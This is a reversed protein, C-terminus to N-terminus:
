QIYLFEKFNLVVHALDKWVEQSNILDPRPIEHLSALEAALGRFREQEVANPLRGLVTRFLDAIRAEVTAAPRDLLREACNAAASVVFPDNLMALAQAPVNTVDRKGRSSMPSPYDFTELFRAGEMRTVKMYISRRGEGDLPGSFLRRYDKAQARHPHISPGFMSDQLKGSTMLITDRLSEGELRRLPYHHLLENQPDAERASATTDGSQQFSESLALLRIMKKISWGEEVFRAALYDLLRPHTPKDGLFGFNDVSGVIGQGFVHHWIRNVMVRATLPNDPSAILEALQKRGSDLEGLPKTGFLRQLFVRPAPKGFSKPGGAVLVSFDQGGGADALGEVVRPASLLAETARYKEILTRLRVTADAQSSLLDNRVLWDLWLADDDSSRGKAWNTVAVRAAAAYRAALDDWDSPPGNAFLRMMHSLGERPVDDVDHLVAEVVGFFSVPSDIQGPRDKLRDPRDPIRPNDWKTLLEFFVPLRDQAAHTESKFWRPSRSDFTDYKEGIACNDVVTRHAALMGGMARFSLYKKNKPLDPSRLSGNLRSSITHSYVGAPFIGSLAREGDPAVAFDGSPVSGERLGMGAASWSAPVGSRFDGLTEFNSKNFEAREAQERQYRDHLERAVDPFPQEGATGDLIAAWPRAPAELGHDPCTLASRWADVRAPDLGTSANTRVVSVPAVSLLHEEIDQIEDIWLTKLEDRIEHKLRRLASIKEANVQSTDITHTVVRSSNLIGYLGYYDETPIPDLKHDHCRACSVTLAQFTKTLTDIQNDMVDLAIERFKICNDHGAEGLRYFATGIVSENIQEGHNIRPQDLLDGAIHERVLQDYPVDANLARILYDRYRWAGIIEYNWEYGRTEGYRVLDLWHRAWHEGFRPSELLRDLLKEYADPATDAVFGDAEAASPPLGTLVYSLRRILVRRHAPKTPSLGAKGLAHYVFRDAPNRSWRPSAVKPFLPKKVPQFAWHERALREYRDDGSVEAAGSSSPWPAGRRIWEELAAIQSEELKGGLPMQLELHRVARILLSEEPEGLLVSPGRTGGRILAERSDLRLASFQKDPGHCSYCRTALVPRVRTEFFEVDQVPPQVPSQATASGVMWIAGVGLSFRVSWVLQRRPNLRAVMHESEGLNGDYGNDAAGELQPYRFTRQAAAM